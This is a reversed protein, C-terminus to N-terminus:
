AGNKLNNNHKLNLLRDLNRVTRLLINNRPHLTKAGNCRRQAEPLAVNLSTRCVGSCIERRKCGTFNKKVVVECKVHKLNLKNWYVTYNSM